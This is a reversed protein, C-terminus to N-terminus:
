FAQLLLVLITPLALLGDLVGYYWYDSITRLSKKTGSLLLIFPIAMSIIVCINYNKILLLLSVTFLIAVSVILLKFQGPNLYTIMNKIGFDDTKDRYDFLMCSFYIILFRNITFLWDISNSNDYCLVPLITTVYLWTASLYFTKALAINRLRVFPKLSIKPASYLFTLFAPPLLLKALFPHQLNVYLIGAGGGICCALLIKKHALTWLVRITKKSSNDTLWWHFCYSCLTAFFILTYFYLPVYLKYVLATFWCMAVAVSSVLLNAFIVVSLIKYLYIRMFSNSNCYVVAM